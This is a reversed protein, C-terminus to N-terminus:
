QCVVSSKKLGQKSSYLIGHCYVQLSAAINLLRETNTADEEKIDSIAEEIYRNSELLQEKVGAISLHLLKNQESAQQTTTSAQNLIRTLQSGHSKFVEQLTQIQRDTNM